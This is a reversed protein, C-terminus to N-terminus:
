MPIMKKKERSLLNKIIEISDKIEEVESRSPNEKTAEYEEHKEANVKALVQNAGKIIDNDMRSCHAFCPICSSCQIPEIVRIEDTPITIQNSANTKVAVRFIPNLENFVDIKNLVSNKM